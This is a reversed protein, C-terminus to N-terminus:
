PRDKRSRVWRQLAWGAVCVMFAVLLGAGVNLLHYLVPNM